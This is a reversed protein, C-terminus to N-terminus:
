KVTFPPYDPTNDADIAKQVFVTPGDNSQYSACYQHDGVVGGANNAIGSESGIQISLLPGTGIWIQTSPPPGFPIAPRPESFVPQNTSSLHGVIIYPQTSCKTDPAAYFFESGLWYGSGDYPLRYQYSQGDDPSRIARRLFAEERDQGIIQYHSDWVCDTVCLQPEANAPSILSVGTLLAAVAPLAKLVTSM